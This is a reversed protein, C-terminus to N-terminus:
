KVTVTFPLYRAMGKGTWFLMAKSGDTSLLARRVPNTHGVYM